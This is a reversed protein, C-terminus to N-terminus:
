RSPSGPAWAPWARRASSSESRLRVSAPSRAQRSLGSRRPRRPPPRNRPRPRRRRPSRRFRRFRRRHTPDSTRTPAAWRAGPQLNITVQAGSIAVANAPSCTIGVLEWGNPVLEGVKYIGPTLGTFTKSAGSPTIGDDVLSFDNMPASGTFAFPQSSQPSASKAIVITGPVIQKTDKYECVVSGGSVLNITVQAGSITAATSPTCQIGALDWGAPVNESVTYTGPALDAFVKSAKTSDLGDDVLNFSGLRASGTFSFAQSSQPNASKKIEITGPIIKNRVACTAFEGPKLM